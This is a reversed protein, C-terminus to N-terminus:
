PNASAARPAKTAAEYNQILQGVSADMVRTFSVPYIGMWLTVVVLPAFVLIERRSLDPLYKLEDKVLPGFIVRRYLWLMYAAGLIM